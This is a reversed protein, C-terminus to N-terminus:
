LSPIGRSTGQRPWALYAGLVLHGIGTCYLRPTMGAGTHGLTYQTECYSTHSRLLQTTRKASAEAGHRGASRHEQALQAQSDGAEAGARGRTCRPRHQPRLLALSLPREHDKPQLEDQLQVHGGRALEEGGEEAERGPLPVGGSAM